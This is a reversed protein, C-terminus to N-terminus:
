NSNSPKVALFAKHAPTFRSRGYGDMMKAEFGVRRLEGLVIEGSYLHLRHVEDGRRYLLGQRLFSTIKRELTAERKNERTEVLIAWGRGELFRRQPGGDPVIGPEVIDFAFVGGPRLARFVRRFFQFLGQKGSRRDFAYNVCEGISTVADCRPLDAEFLSAVRFKANPAHRRALRIMAPSIDIGLVEYGRETLQRAWIGSGCGADVVLGKCIGNQRLMRLLGPAAKSVFGTFGRDHICALDPQYADM